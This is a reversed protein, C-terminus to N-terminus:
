PQGGSRLPVREQVFHALQRASAGDLRVFRMGLGPQTGNQRERRWIVRATPTLIFLTEPLSFELDVETSEPAACVGEVFIGGRSVNRAMGWHEREGQVIRVAAKLPVRPMGRAVPSNLYRNVADILAVRGIPKALVQDAGARIARAHDEALPSATLMVVPISRLEPDAKLIRCVAEGDLDPMVLDLLIVDPRERRAVALGEEGSAATLVRGQRALFISELERFMAADDIVLINRGHGM